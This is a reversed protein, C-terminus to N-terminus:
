KKRRGEEHVGMVRTQFLEVAARHPHSKSMPSKELHVCDTPKPNTDRQASGTSTATSLLISLFKPQSIDEEAM